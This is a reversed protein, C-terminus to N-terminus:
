SLMFVIWKYSASKLNLACVCVCVCLMVCVCVSVYVCVCVCVFVSGAVSSGSFLQTTIPPSTGRRNSQYATIKGNSTTGEANVYRLIIRALYVDAESVDVQLKM